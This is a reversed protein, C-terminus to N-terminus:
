LEQYIDLPCHLEYDWKELDKLAQVYARVREWAGIREENTNSSAHTNMSSILGQTLSKSPLCLAHSYVIQAPVIKIKKMKDAM